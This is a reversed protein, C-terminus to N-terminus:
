VVTNIDEPATGVSSLAAIPCRLFDRRRTKARAANFGTDVLISRQANRILWVYYYIPEPGDHPDAGMFYDSRPRLSQAYQLAFVEYTSDQTM